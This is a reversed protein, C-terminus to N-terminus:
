GHRKYFFGILFGLASPATIFWNNGQSIKFVVFGLFAVPFYGIIITLFLGFRERLNYRGRLIRGSFYTIIFYLIVSLSLDLTPNM